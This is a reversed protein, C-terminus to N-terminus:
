TLLFGIIRAEAVPAAVAGLYGGTVEFREMIWTDELYRNPKEIAPIVVTRVGQFRISFSDLPMTLGQGVAKIFAEKCVWTDFFVRRRSAEPARRVVASEDASYFRDSLDEFEVKRSSREVDVGLSIGLATAILLCDGSHSLNFELSPKGPQPDLLFPKGHEGAGFALDIPAVGRCAALIRRLIGHAFVYRDRDRDRLFRWARETEDRSLISRFDELQDSWDAFHVRWVNIEGPLPAQPHKRPNWDM